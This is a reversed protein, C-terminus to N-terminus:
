SSKPQKRLIVSMIISVFLGIGFSQAIYLMAIQAINTSPLEALNREFVEKGIRKIDEEPFGKIYETMATVYSPIFNTEWAGFLRLLLSGLVAATAVVVFSGILGQWFYLVNENHVERYEKLTFFIFIGYLIIRFDMFPAVLLPHRGMYYMTIMLSISLFAAIAGYRAGITVLPSAKKM